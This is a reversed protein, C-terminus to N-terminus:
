GPCYEVCKQSMIKFWKDTLLGATGEITIFKIKYHITNRQSVSM